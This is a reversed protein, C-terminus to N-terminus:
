FTMKIYVYSWFELEQINLQVFVMMLTNDPNSFYM